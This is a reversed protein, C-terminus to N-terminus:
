AEGAAAALAKCAAKHQPWHAKQCAAACYRVARCGACRKLVCGSTPAGGCGHCTPPAPPRVPLAAPMRTPLMAVAADANFSGAAADVPFIRLLIAMEEAKLPEQLMGAARLTAEAAALLAAAGGAAARALVSTHVVGAADPKCLAHLAGCASSLPRTNRAHARLTFLTCDVAAAEDAASVGPQPACVVFRSAAICAENALHADPAEALLAGLLLRPLDPVRVALQQPEFHTLMSLFVALWFVRSGVDDDDDGFPAPPQPAGPAQAARLAQAAAHAGGFVPALLMDIMVGRQRPTADEFLRHLLSCAKLMVDAPNDNSFHPHALMAAECLKAAGAKIADRVQAEGVLLQSIASLALFQAEYSGAHAQAAHVITLFCGSGCLLPEIDDTSGLAALVSCARGVLRESNPATGHMALARLTTALRARLAGPATARAMCSTDANLLASLLSMAAHQVEYRSPYADCAAFAAVDAGAAGALACQLPDYGAADRLALCAERIVDVSAGHARLAACCLAVGDAAVVALAGADSRAAVLHLVRCGLAQVEARHQARLVAAAAAAEACCDGGGSEGAALRDGLQKLLAPAEPAGPARLLAALSM